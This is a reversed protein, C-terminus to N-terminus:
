PMFPWQCPDLTLQSKYPVETAVLLSRKLLKTILPKRTFQSCIVQRQHAVACRMYPNSPWFQYSHDIWHNDIPIYHWFSFIKIQCSCPVNRLINPNQPWLTLCYSDKKVPNCNGMPRATISVNQGIGVLNLYPVHTCVHDMYWQM